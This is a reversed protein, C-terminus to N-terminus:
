RIRHQGQKTFGELVKLSAERIFGSTEHWGYPSAPQSDPRGPQVRVQLRGRIRNAM